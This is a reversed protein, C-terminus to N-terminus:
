GDRPNAIRDWCRILAEHGIDIPTGDVIPHPPYPTLFSVGDRRLADVIARLTNADTETVAVLDRFALPRRIAKGEVNVDTLARFLREVAYRREPDPAVTSPRTPM